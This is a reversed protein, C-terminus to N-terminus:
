LGQSARHTGPPQPQWINLRDACSPPLTTLGVSRGGIRWSINRASMEILPQSSRLPVPLIIDLFIGIAGDPISGEVKRNTAYHRLCQAVAQGWKTYLRNSNSDTQALVQCLFVTLKLNNRRVHKNDLCHCM